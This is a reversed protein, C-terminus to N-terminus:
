RVTRARRICAQVLRAIDEITAMAADSANANFNISVKYRDELDFFLEVLELSDIGVQEITTAGNWGEGRANTDRRLIALLDQVIDRITPIAILELTTM